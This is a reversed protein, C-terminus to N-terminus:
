GRRAKAAATRETYRKVIVKRAANMLVQVRRFCDRRRAKPVECMAIATEVETLPITCRGGGLGPQEWQGSLSVFVVFAECNEPLVEWGEGDGHAISALAM